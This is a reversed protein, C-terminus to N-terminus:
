SKMRKRALDLARKSEERFFPECDMESRTSATTSDSSAAMEFCRAM